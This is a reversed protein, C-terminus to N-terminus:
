VGEYTLSIVRSPHENEGEISRSIAHMGYAMKCPPLFTDRFEMTGIFIM